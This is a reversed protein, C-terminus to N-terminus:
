ELKNTLDKRNCPKFAKKDDLQQCEAVIAQIAEEGYRKVGAKAGMQNFVMGVASIHNKLDVATDTQPGKSVIGGLQTLCTAILRKDYNLANGRLNHGHGPPAPPAEDVAEPAEDVAEQAEQEENEDNQVQEENRPPGGEGEDRGPAGPAGEDINKLFKKNSFINVTSESNLLVWNQNIM